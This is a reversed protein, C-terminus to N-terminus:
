WGLLLFYATFGKTRNGNPTLLVTTTTTTTSSVQTSNDAFYCFFDILSAQGWLSYKHFTDNDSSNDSSVSTGVTSLRRPRRLNSSVEPLVFSVITNQALPSVRTKPHTRSRTTGIQSQPFRRFSRRKSRAFYNKYLRSGFPSVSLFSNAYQFYRDFFNDLM